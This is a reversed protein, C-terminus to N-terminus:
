IGRKPTRTRRQGAKVAMPPPVCAKIGPAFNFCGGAFVRRSNKIGALPPKIGERPFPKVTPPLAIVGHRLAIVDHPLAIVGHPLVIVGRPLPMVGRRLRVVEAPLRTVATPLPMLAILHQEPRGALLRLPERERQRVPRARRGYDHPLRAVHRGERLADPTREALPILATARAM